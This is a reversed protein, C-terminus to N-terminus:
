ECRLAVMPDVKAARRAPVYSALLVASLLVVSAAVYGAVDLTKGGVLLSGLIRHLAPVMALGLSLGITVAVLAQRMV